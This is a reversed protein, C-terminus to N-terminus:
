TYFLSKLYHFFFRAVRLIATYVAISFFNMAKSLIFLTTRAQNLRCYARFIRTCITCPFFLFRTFIGSTGVFESGLESLDYCLINLISQSALHTGPIILKVPNRVIRTKLLGVELGAKSRSPEDLTFLCTETALVITCLCFM